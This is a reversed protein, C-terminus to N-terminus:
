ATQAPHEKALHRGFLHGVGGSYLIPKRPERWENNVIQGFTRAFGFSLPEGFENGYSSIGNSGEILIELPSAYTSPKGAGAIEREIVFKPM